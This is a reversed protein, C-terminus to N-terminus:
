YRLINIVSWHEFSVTVYLIHHFVVATNVGNVCGVFSESSHRLINCCELGNCGSKMFKFNMKWSSKVDGLVIANLLLQKDGAVPYKLIGIISPYHGYKL